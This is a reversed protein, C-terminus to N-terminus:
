WSGRVIKADNTLSWLGRSDVAHVILSRQQDTRRTGTPITTELTGAQVRAGRVNTYPNGVEDTGTPYEVIVSYASAGSVASWSVLFDGADNVRRLSYSAPKAPRTVVAGNSFVPIRGSTYRYSSSSCASNASSTYFIWSVPAAGNKCINTFEHVATFASAGPFRTNFNNGLFPYFPDSVGFTDFDRFPEYKVRSGDAYVADFNWQVAVYRDKTFALQAACGGLNFAKFNSPAAYNPQCTYQWTTSQRAQLPLSSSLTSTTLSLLALILTPLQMKSIPLKVAELVKSFRLLLITISYLSTNIYEAQYTICMSRPPVIVATADPVFDIVFALSTAADRFSLLFCSPETATCDLKASHIQFGFLGCTSYVLAKALRPSLAQRSYLTLRPEEALFGSSFFVVLPAPRM